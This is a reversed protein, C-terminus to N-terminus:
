MVSSDLTKFYRLKKEKYIAVFKTSNKYVDELVNDVDNHYVKLWWDYDKYVVSSGSSVWPNYKIKSRSRNNIDNCLTISDAMTMSENTWNIVNINKDRMGRGISEISVNNIKKYGYNAYDQEIPSLVEDHGVNNKISLPFWWWMDLANNEELWRLSEYQSAITDKPLGAIFTGYLFLDPYKLKITVLYEKLIDPDITKGILKGTEKNFSDIGIHAARVGSAVLKDIMDPHKYLLDLRLFCVIQLKDPISEAIEQLIDAKERTDNFTSDSISFKTIGWKNYSELMEDIIDQKNREYLSKTVGIESHNCFSCKFICGLSFTLFHVENKDIFDSDLFKSSFSNAKLDNVYDLRATILKCNDVLKFKLNNSDQLIALFATEAYGEIYYDAGQYQARIVREGFVIIKTDPLISKIAALIEDWHEYRKDTTAGVGIFAPLKTKVDDLIQLIESKSFDHLFDVVDVDINHERLFTAVRHTSPHRTIGNRDNIYMNWKDSLILGYTM